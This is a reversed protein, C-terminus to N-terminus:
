IYYSMRRLIIGDLLLHSLHGGIFSGSSILAVSLDRFFYFVLIFVIVGVLVEVFITHTIGRHSPNFLIFLLVSLLGVGFSVGFLCLIQNEPSSVGFFLSVMFDLYSPNFFLLLFCFVGFVFFLFYCVFKYPKSGEKDIDPFSAGVVGFFLPLLVFYFGWFYDFFFYSFLLGVCLGVFLHCYFNM